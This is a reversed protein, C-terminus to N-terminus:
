LTGHLRVIENRLDHEIQAKGHDHIDPFRDVIMLAGLLLPDIWSLVALMSRHADVLQVVPMPKGALRIDPRALGQFVPEHHMARNRLDVFLKTHTAVKRTTLWDSQPVGQRPHHPFVLWLLRGRNASWISDYRSEFIRHWFGFSQAAVVKGPSPRDQLSKRLKIWERNFHDIDDPHLFPWFWYETGLETTLTRHISNRLGVEVASLGQLLAESLAVNWLYNVATQLDDRDQPRYRERRPRSVLSELKAVYDAVM